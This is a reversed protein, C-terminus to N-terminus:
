EEVSELKVFSIEDQIGSRLGNIYRVIKDVDDDGHGFRIDLDISRPITSNTIRNRNLTQPLTM